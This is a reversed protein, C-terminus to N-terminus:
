RERAPGRILLLSWCRGWPIRSRVRVPAPLLPTLADDEQRKREQLLTQLEVVRSKTADLCDTLTTDDAAEFQDPTTLGRELLSLYQPRATTRTKVKRCGSM